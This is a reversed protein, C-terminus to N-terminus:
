SKRLGVRECDHRFVKRVQAGVFVPALDEIVRRRTRHTPGRSLQPAHPVRGVPGLPVVGFAIAGERCTTMRNHRESYVPARLLVRKAFDVARGASLLHGCGGRMAM